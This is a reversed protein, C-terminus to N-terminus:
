LVLMADGYSYFRYGREVAAEYAGRATEVGAFGAVLALLLALTEEKIFHRSYDALLGDLRLSRQEFRRADAAFLAELRWNAAARQHAILAQWDACANLPTGM